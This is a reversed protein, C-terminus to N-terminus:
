SGFDIICIKAMKQWSKYFLLRMSGLNQLKPPWRLPNLVPHGSSKKLFDGLIYGFV